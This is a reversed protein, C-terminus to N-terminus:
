HISPTAKVELAALLDMLNEETLGDLCRKRVVWHVLRQMRLSVVLMTMLARLNPRRGEGAGTPEGGWDGGGEQGNESVRDRPSVMVVDGEDTNDVTKAEAEAVAGAEEAVADSNDGNVGGDAAGNANAHGEGEKQEENGNGDGGDAEQLEGWSSESDPQHGVVAAADSGVRTEKSDDAEHEQEQESAKGSELWGPSACADELTDVLPSTTEPSIHFPNNLLELPLNDHMIACLSSTLCDWVTYEEQRFM